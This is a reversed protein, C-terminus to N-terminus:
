AMGAWRASRRRPLPTCITPLALPSTLNQELPFPALYCHPVFLLSARRRGPAISLQFSPITLVAVALLGAREASVWSFICDKGTAQDTAHKTQTGRVQGARSASPSAVYRDADSILSGNLMASARWRQPPASTTQLLAPGISSDTIGALDPLLKPDFRIAQTPARGNFLSPGSPYAALVPYAESCSAL